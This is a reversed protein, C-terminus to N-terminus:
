YEWQPTSHSIAFAITPHFGAEILEQYLENVKNYRIKDLEELIIKSEGEIYKDQIEDRMRQISIWRDNIDKINM